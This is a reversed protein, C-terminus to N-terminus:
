PQGSPHIALRGVFISSATAYWCWSTLVMLGTGSRSKPLSGNASRRILAHPKPHHAISAQWRACLNARSIIGVVKGKRLVPLRKIHHREMLRVVRDLSTDEDVTIPQRTMLEAITIGHARVYDHAGQEPGFIAAMRQAKDRDRNRWPAIFDGETIIAVLKGSADIVPLGSLRNKLMLKVAHVITAPPQISIVRRTMVESAKM